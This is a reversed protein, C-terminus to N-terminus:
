FSLLNTMEESQRKVPDLGSFHAPRVTGGRGNIRETSSVALLVINDSANEDRDATHGCSECKFTRDSLSLNQKIWGCRSCRKSTPEFRSVTVFEIGYWSCKYALQRRLERLSADAISRSLRRNKMMGSVSLDEVGIVRPRMEPPKAKAVM